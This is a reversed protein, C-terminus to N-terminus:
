QWPTGCPITTSDSSSIGFPSTVTVTISGAVGPNNCFVSVTPSETPGEDSLWLGPTGYYSYTVFPGRPYVACTYMGQQLRCNFSTVGPPTTHFECSHLGDKECDENKTLSYENSPCTESETHECIGEAQALTEGWPLLLVALLVALRLPNAFM